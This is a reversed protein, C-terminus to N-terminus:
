RQYELASRQGWKRCSHCAWNVLFTIDNLYCGRDKRHSTWDCPWLIYLALGQQLWLGHPRPWPCTRLCLEEAFLWFFLSCGTLFVITNIYIISFISICRHIQLGHRSSYALTRAYPGSPIAQTHLKHLHCHLQNVQLSLTNRYLYSLLVAFLDRQLPPSKLIIVKLSQHSSRLAIHAALVVTVIREQNSKYM